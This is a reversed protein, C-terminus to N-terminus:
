LANKSISTVFYKVVFLCLVCFTPHYCVWSGCFVIVCISVNAIYLHNTLLITISRASDQPKSSLATTRLDSKVIQYFDKIVSTFVSGQKRTPSQAHSVFQIEESEEWLPSKARISHNSLATTLLQGLFDTETLGFGM